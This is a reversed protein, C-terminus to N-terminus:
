KQSQNSNGGQSSEELEKELEAINSLILRGKINILQSDKEVVVKKLEYVSLDLKNVSDLEEKALASKLFTWTTELDEMHSDVEAWKGNQSYLICSRTYFVMRKLEAIHNTKYFSYFEPISSHINNTALLTKAKDKESIINTLDNLSNSFNDIIKSDNSKEAAEPMYENWQTHLQNLTQSVKEWPDNKDKDKDKDQEQEKQQEQEEGQAQANDGGDKKESGKEDESSNKPESSDQEKGTAPAGLAQFISEISTEIETLPKPAKENQESETSQQSSDNKFIGCGNVTLSSFLFLTIFMITIKTNKYFSKNM